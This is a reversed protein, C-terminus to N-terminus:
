RCYQVEKCSGCRRLQAAIKGCGDCELVAGPNKMLAATRAEAVAEAERRLAPSIPRWRDGEQQLQQLWPKLPLALTRRSDLACTWQM